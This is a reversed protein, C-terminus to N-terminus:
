DGRDEDEDGHGQRNHTEDGDRNVTAVKLVLDIALHAAQM